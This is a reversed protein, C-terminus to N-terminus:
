NLVVFAGWYEPSPYTERIASQAKRLAEEYTSGSRLNEYFYKMLMSTCRDDVNWLSMLIKEVGALKFARQLGYVGETKKSQGLGTRCASLVALSCNSFDLYQIEDARLIGDDLMSTAVFLTDSKTWTSDAGAFFLGSNYMPNYGKKHSDDEEFFGHTSIHLINDKLGSRSRFSAETASQGTFSVVNAKSHNLINIISNIEEASFVLHCLGQGREIDRYPSIDIQGLQRKSGYEVDGWM